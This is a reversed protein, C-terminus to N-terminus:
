RSWPAKEFAATAEESCEVVATVNRLTIAPAAPGIKCGNSPGTAALGIISRVDASWYVIMRAREIRISEADSPEGYGFFAGRHATTVIIPAQKQKAM